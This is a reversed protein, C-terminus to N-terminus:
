ASPRPTAARTPRRTRRPSRRSRIPARRSPAVKCATRFTRTASAGPALGPIPFAGEGPVDVTFPGAPGTGQNTVTFFYKVREAYGMASIVLDPRPTPPPAPPPPPPPPPAPKPTLTEITYTVSAKDDGLARLGVGKMSTVRLKVFRTAAQQSRSSAIPLLEGNPRPQGFTTSSAGAGTPTASTRQWLVEDGLATRIAQVWQRTAFYATTYANTYGLRGPWDKNVGKKMSKNGDTNWARHPRDKHGTSDGIYVNLTDRAAKPM